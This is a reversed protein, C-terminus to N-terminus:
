VMVGSMSPMNKGMALQKSIYSNKNYMGIESLVAVAFCPNPVIKELQKYNVLYSGLKVIRNYKYVEKNLGGARISGYVDGEGPFTNALSTVIALM